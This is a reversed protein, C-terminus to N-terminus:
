VHQWNRREVIDSVARRTLGYDIALQRHSAGKAARHRIARVDAETVRAAYHRTGRPVREPLRQTWHEHSRAIRGREVAERINQPRDGLHLHTPNVCAKVDCDHLVWQGDPVATGHAQEWAFRHARVCHQRGDAGRYSFKGYGYENLTGTWLWCTDTHRVFQTFRETLSLASKAPM